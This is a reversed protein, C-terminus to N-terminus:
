INIKPVTMLPAVVRAIPAVRDPIPRASKGGLIDAKAAVAFIIRLTARIGRNPIPPAATAVAVDNIIAANKFKMKIAFFVLTVNSTGHYPFSPAIIM